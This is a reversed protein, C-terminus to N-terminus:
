VREEDQMTGREIERGMGGDSAKWRDHLHGEEVGRMAEDTRLASERGREQRGGDVVESIRM